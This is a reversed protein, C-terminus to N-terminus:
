LLQFINLLTFLSGLIVVTINVARQGPNAKILLLAGLIVAAISTILAIMSLTHPATGEPLYSLLIEVREKQTTGVGFAKIWLGWLVVTPVLLIPGALYRFWLLLKSM